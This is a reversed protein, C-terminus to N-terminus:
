DRRSYVLDFDTQWGEGQRRMQWRGRITDGGDEFTATFRQAFELPTFDAAERALTWETRDFTMAYVRAVNRSDFYHQVYQNRAEDWGVIAWLDPADPHDTQARQRLFQGDLIWDFETVGAVDPRDPQPFSAAVSWSGLLPELRELAPETVEIV